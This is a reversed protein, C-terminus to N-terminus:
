PAVLANHLQQTLLLLMFRDSEHQLWITEFEEILPSLNELLAKEGRKGDRLALSTASIVRILSQKVEPHLEDIDLDPMRLEEEYGVYAVGHAFAKRSLEKGTLCAIAHVWRDKAKAANHEDFIPECGEGGVGVYAYERGHGLLVCGEYPEALVKELESRSLEHGHYGYCSSDLQKTHEAIQHTFRLAMDDPHWADFVFWRM